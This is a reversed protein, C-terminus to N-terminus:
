QKSLDTLAKLDHQMSELLLNADQIVSQQKRSITDETRSKDTIAKQIKEQALKLKLYREQYESKEDADKSTWLKLTIINLQQWTKESLNNKSKILAVTDSLSHGTSYIQKITNELTKQQKAIKKQMDSTTAVGTKNYISHASDTNTSITNLQTNIDSISNKPSSKDEIISSKAIPRYKSQLQVSVDRNQLEAQPYGQQVALDKKGVHEITHGQFYVKLAKQVEQAVLAQLENKSIYMMDSM